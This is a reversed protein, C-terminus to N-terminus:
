ANAEKLLRGGAQAKHERAARIFGVFLPHGDRPTSLFEPHAQCALFWPHKNRPLEVMEVLTEDMSKASIVLGANELENLYRNNFEYRHRHREGVVDKGYLDRALTGPKIRQDQLGLRMTGGLDSEESRREVDGSATRWETILGIVPHQSQKDNETSNADAYGLVHRAYDVVAAQMGYCIGFYPLGHERAYQATRVKGEFGRDGFGGPVLIGDVDQLVKDGNQEVDTSELWKL